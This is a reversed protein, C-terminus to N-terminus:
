NEGRKIRFMRGMRNFKKDAKRASIRDKLGPHM